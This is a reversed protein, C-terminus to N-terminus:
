ELENNMENLIHMNAKLMSRSIMLSDSMSGANKKCVIGAFSFYREIFASTAPINQMCIYLFRLRPLKESNENWFKKNSKIGEINSYVINM